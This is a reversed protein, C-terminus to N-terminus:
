EEQTQEKKVPKKKTECLNIKNKLPVAQLGLAWGLLQYCYLKQCLVADVQPKRGVVDGLVEGSHCRCGGASPYPSLLLASHCHGM